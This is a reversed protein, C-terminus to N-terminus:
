LNQNNQQNNNSVDLKQIIRDSIEQPTLLTEGRMCDVKVLGYLKSLQLYAREAQNLHRLDKEHIDKSGKKIYSRPKKKAILQQGIEHPIYLLMTLDPEPIDLKIFELDLLWQWYKKRLTQNIIKGGQHAANSFTYRNTIVVYGQALYSKIEASAAYRDIAYFMSGQYPNVQNSKGFKGNLYEEVLKASSKGYRPFSIVKVKKGIKRFYKGLLAAQTAKGTGDTGEIAIFLGKKNTM